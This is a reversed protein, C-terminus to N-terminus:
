YSGIIAIAAVASPLADLEKGTTHMGAMIYAKPM